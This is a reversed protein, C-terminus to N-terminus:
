AAVILVVRRNQARGSETANDAIPREMGLGRVQLDKFSLGTAQMAQAVAEARRLSLRQNYDAKGISDTHGEVRLGTIGVDLLRQGLKQLEARQAGRLLVSDFDFLLSMSLNLEWGGDVPQFGLQKLAERQADTLTGPTAPKAPATSQCGSLAGLGMAGVVGAASMLLGGLLRRRLAPDQSEGAIRPASGAFPGTPMATDPPASSASLGTRDSLRPFTRLSKM